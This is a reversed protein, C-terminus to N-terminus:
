ADLAPLDRESLSDPITDGRARALEKYAELTSEVAAMHCWSGRGYWKRAHEQRIACQRYRARLREIQLFTPM